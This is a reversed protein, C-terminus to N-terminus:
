RGGAARRSAGGCAAVVGEQRLHFAEARLIRCAHNAAEIQDTRQGVVLVGPLDRLVADGGAQDGAADDGGGDLQNGSAAARAVFRADIVELREAVAVGRERGAVGRFCERQGRHDGVM